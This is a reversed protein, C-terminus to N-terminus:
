SYSGRSVVKTSFGADGLLEGHDSVITTATSEPEPLHDLLRGLQHDLLSLHDAYDARLTKIEEKSPTKIWQLQRKRCESTM